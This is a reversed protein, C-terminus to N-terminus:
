PVANTVVDEFADDVAKVTARGGEESTLLHIRGEFGGSTVALNYFNTADEVGGIPELKPNYVWNNLGVFIGHRNRTVCSDPEVIPRIRTSSKTGGGSSYRLNNPDDPDEIEIWYKVPKTGKFKGFTKDIFNTASFGNAPSFVGGVHQAINSACRFDDYPM